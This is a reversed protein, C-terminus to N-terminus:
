VCCLAGAMSRLAFEVCAAVVSHVYCSFDRVEHTVNLSARKGDAIDPTYAVAAKLMPGVASHSIAALVGNAGFGWGMLSISKSADIWPTNVSSMVYDIGGKINVAYDQAATTMDLSAMNAKEASFVNM